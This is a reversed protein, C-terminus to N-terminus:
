PCPAPPAPGPQAGPPIFKYGVHRMTVLCRGYKVGLKRRLRHVHVDVTRSEHQQGRGWVHTLLQGRSFVKGPNSVLFNLLEFERFTVEIRIADVWVERGERDIVLGSPAPAPVPLSDPRPVPLAYGMVALTASEDVPVIALLRHFSHPVGAPGPGGDAAGSLQHREDPTVVTDRRRLRGTVSRAAVNM